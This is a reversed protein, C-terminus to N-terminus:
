KEPLMIFWGSANSTTTATGISWGGRYKSGASPAFTVIYEGFPLVPLQFVGSADTLVSAAEAGVGVSDTPTPMTRAYATVKVGEIGQATVATDGLGSKYGKVVGHFSGPGPAPPPTTTSGTDDTSVRALGDLPSSVPAASDACALALVAILAVGIHPTNRTSTM